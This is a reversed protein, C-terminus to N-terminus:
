EKNNDNNVKLGIYEEVILAIEDALKEEADESLHIASNTFEKEPILKWLDYYKIDNKHIFERMISRYQDYAWRPYYYNYQISSNIGKSILIPENILIFDIDANIEIGKKIIELALFDELNDDSNVTYYKELPDPFDRQAPNFSESYEQDIGTANWLIGLLQLNLVDFINRRQNWFTKEFIDEEMIKIDSLDYKEIISNVIMVNNKIIPIELQKKGPLAELTTFWLILDPDYELVRDIVVLDKLISISPYGLNHFIAKNDIETFRENLLGSLTNDPEQLFGWISSDGILIVHFDEAAIQKRNIEHSAFMADLNYLSLNNSQKPSEGFPLRSRGELIFNYLSLKSIPLRSLFIWGFNFILLILFTKIIVRKISISSNSKENKM